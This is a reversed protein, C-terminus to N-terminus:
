EAIPEELTLRKIQPIRKQAYDRIEEQIMVEGQRIAKVQGFRKGVLTGIKVTHGVGDSDELLAMPTATGVVVAVLKLKDLDIKQLKTLKSDDPEVAVLEDLYSRFPDSHAGPDYTFNLDEASTPANAAVDEVKKERKPAVVPAVTEDEDEGCAVTLTGVAMVTALLWSNNKSIYNM